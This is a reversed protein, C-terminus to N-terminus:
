KGDPGVFVLHVTATAPAGPQVGTLNFQINLMKPAIAEVTVKWSKEFSGQITGKEAFPEPKPPKPPSQTGNSPGPPTASTITAVNGTSPTTETPPNNQKVCGALAAALVLLAIAALAPRQFM